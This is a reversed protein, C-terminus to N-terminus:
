VKAVSILLLIFIQHKPYRIHPGQSLTALTMVGLTAEWLVRSAFHSVAQVRKDSSTLDETRSLMCHLYKMWTGGSSKILTENSMM